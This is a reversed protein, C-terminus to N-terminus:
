CDMKNPDLVLEPDYRFPPHSIFGNSCVFVYRGLTKFATNRIDKKCMDAFSTNNLWVITANGTIVMMPPSFFAYHRGTSSKIFRYWPFIDAAHVLCSGVTNDKLGLIKRIPDGETEFTECVVFRGSGQVYTTNTIRANDFGIEVTYYSGSNAHPFTDVFYKMWDTFDVVHRKVAANKFSNVTVVSFYPPVVTKDIWSAAGCHYHKSFFRNQERSDLKKVDPFKETLFEVRTLFELGDKADTHFLALVTDITYGKFPHAKIMPMYLSLPKGDGRVQNLPIAHKSMFDNSDTPNKIIGKVLEETKITLSDMDAPHCFFFFHFM